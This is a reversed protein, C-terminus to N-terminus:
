RPPPPIHHGAKRAKSIHIAREQRLADEKTEHRGLVREGKSDFLVWKRGIKKIM